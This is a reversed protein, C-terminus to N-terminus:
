LCVHLLEDISRTENSLKIKEPEMPPM